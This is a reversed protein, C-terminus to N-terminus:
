EETFYIQKDNTATITGAVNPDSENLKEIATLAAYVKNELNDISGLKITLRGKYIISNTNIDVVSVATIEDLKLKNVATTIEILNEFVKEDKLELKEGQKASKIDANAISISGKPKEAAKLELVKLREDLLIYTKDSNKISYIKPTETITIDIESPLKRKINADFIYPLEKELNAKAKETDALFLNQEKEITLADIIQEESYKANGDIKITDIKFFVTLSLTIIVAAIAIVLALISLFRYIDKTRKRKKKNLKHKQENSQPLSKRQNAKTKPKNRTAQKRSDERYIKPPEIDFSGLADNLSSFEDSKKRRNNREQKKM